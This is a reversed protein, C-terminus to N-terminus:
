VPVAEVQEVVPAQEVEVATSAPAPDATIPLAVQAPPRPVSAGNGRDVPLAMQAPAM